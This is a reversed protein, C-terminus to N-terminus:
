KRFNIIKNLSIKIHVNIRPLKSNGIVNDSSSINSNNTEISNFYSNVTICRSKRYKFSVKRGKRRRSSIFIHSNIKIKYFLAETCGFNFNINSFVNFTMLMSHRNFTHYIRHNVLNNKYFFQFSKYYGFVFMVNFIFLPCAM